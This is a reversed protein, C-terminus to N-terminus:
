NDNYITRISTHKCMFRWYYVQNIQLLKLKDCYTM